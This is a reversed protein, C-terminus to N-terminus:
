STARCCGVRRVMQYMSLAVHTSATPKMMVNHHALFEHIAQIVTGSNVPKSATLEDDDDTMSAKGGFMQTM